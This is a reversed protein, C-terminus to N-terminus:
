DPETGSPGQTRRQHLTAHFHNREKAKAPRLSIIRYADGRMTFVVTASLGFILGTARFRAEGADDPHATSAIHDGELILPADLFDLGHKQLNSTPKTEDWDYIPM